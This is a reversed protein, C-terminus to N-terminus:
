ILCHFLEYSLVLRQPAQGWKKLHYWIDCYPIFLADCASFEADALLYTGPTIVPDHRRASEFVAGDAASGERGSFIYSFCIDFTCTALVNQSIGGKWNQYCALADNPMIIDIHSGDIADQCKNFFPSLKPNNQNGSTNHRFLTQCLSYLIGWFDGHWSDLIHSKDNRWSLLSRTILFNVSQFLIGM